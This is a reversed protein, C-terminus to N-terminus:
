NGEDNEVEEVPRADHRDPRRPQGLRERGEEIREADGGVGDRDPVRVNIKPISEVSKKLPNAIVEDRDDATEEAQNEERRTRLPLRNRGHPRSKEEGETKEREDEHVAPRRQRTM